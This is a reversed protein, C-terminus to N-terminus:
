TMRCFWYNYRAFLLLLPLEIPGDRSCVRWRGARVSRSSENFVDSVVSVLVLLFLLGDIPRMLLEIVSVVLVSEASLSM